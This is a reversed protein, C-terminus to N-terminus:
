LASDGKLAAVLEAVAGDGSFIVNKRDQKPAKNDTMIMRVTLDADGLGLDATTINRIPKKGAQLIQMLAPLRPHNIEDNMTCAVPFPVKVEESPDGDRVAVLAGDEIGKISQTNYLSPMGLLAAVRPGTEGAVRDISVEGAFVMDAGDAEIAKALVKATGTGDTPPGTIVVAEDCGMALPEKILNGGNPGPNYTYAIIKDVGGAEKLKVAAEVAHKDFDSVKWPLGDMKPMQTAADIKLQTVDPAMKVLVAITTM